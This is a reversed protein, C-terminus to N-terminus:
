TELKVEFSFIQDIIDTASKVGLIRGKDDELFTPTNYDWKRESTEDVWEVTCSREHFAETLKDKLEM